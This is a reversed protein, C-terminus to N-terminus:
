VKLDYKKAIAQACTSPGPAAPGSVIMDLPDGLIARNIIIRADERMSRRM